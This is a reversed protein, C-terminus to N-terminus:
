DMWALFFMVVLGVGLWGLQRTLMFTPSNTKSILFSIDWSASFVMIIGFVVLTITVLLLPVDIKLRLPRQINKVPATKQLKRIVAADQGM